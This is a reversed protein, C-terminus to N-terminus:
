SKIMKLVLLNKKQSINQKFLAQALKRKKLYVMNAKINIYRLSMWVM